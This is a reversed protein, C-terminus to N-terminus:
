EDSEKKIGLILQRAAWASINKNEEEAIKYLEIALKIAKRNGPRKGLKRSEEEIVDYCRELLSTDIVPILPKVSPSTESSGIIANISCGMANAITEAWEVTLRREGKELKYIQQFSTGVKEALQELTLGSEKRLKKINNEM